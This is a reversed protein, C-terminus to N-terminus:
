RFLPARKKASLVRRESSLMKRVHKPIKFLGEHTQGDYFRLLRKLTGLREDVQVASLTKANPSRSALLFAWPGDFSPVFAYCPRVVPFVHKLTNALVGHFGFQQPSGSGAQVVLIGGPRLRAGLRRYFEVSYLSYLPSDNSPTPLDSFIVDFSERTKAVFDQADAIVVRTKPNSFAGQHWEKLYTRCFDVVEGDIDVMTIKRVGRHKLIERVTAGEGGGLVLVEKPNAHSVMAPHVLCEHYIFEDLQASQIEGDLILCRGFVRSDAIIAKQFKTQTEVLKKRFRHNHSEDPTFWETFWEGAFDTKMPIPPAEQLPVRM